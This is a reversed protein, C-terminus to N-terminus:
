ADVRAHSSNGAAPRGHGWKWGAGFTAVMSAVAVLLVLLGVKRMLKRRRLNVLVLLLSLIAAGARM